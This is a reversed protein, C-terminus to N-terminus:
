LKVQAARLDMVLPTMDGVEEFSVIKGGRVEFLHVWRFDPLTTGTLKVRAADFGTVIVRDGQAIFEQPEFRLFDLMSTVAAFFEGVAAPGRRTGAIPLDAPGPTTWSVEPDLLNLLAPIDGRGFAAYGQRVIDLNQQESM